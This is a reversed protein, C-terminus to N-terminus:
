LQQGALEAQRGRRETEDAAVPQDDCQGTVARGARGLLAARPDGVGQAHRDGIEAMGPVVPEGAGEALLRRRALLLASMHPMKPATRGAENSAPPASAPATAARPRNARCCRPWSDAPRATLSPSCSM